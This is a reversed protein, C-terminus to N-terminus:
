VHRELTTQPVGFSVSSRRYGIEGSILANVAQQMSVIPWNQKNTKRNYTFVM